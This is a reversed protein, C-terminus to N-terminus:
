QGIVSHVVIQGVGDGGVDGLPRLGVGLEGILLGIPCPRRLLEGPAHEPDTLVRDARRQAVHVAEVDDLEPAAGRVEAACSARRPARGTPTSGVGAWSSVARRSISRVPM